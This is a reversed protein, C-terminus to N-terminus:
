EKRSNGIALSLHEHIMLAEIRKKTQDSEHNGYHARVCEVLSRVDALGAKTHGLVVQNFGQKTQPLGYNAVHAAPLKHRLIESKFAHCQFKFRVTRCSECVEVSDPKVDDIITRKPLSLTGRPKESM